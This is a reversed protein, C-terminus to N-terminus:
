KVKREGKKCYCRCETFVESLTECIKIISTQEFGNKIFLSVAINSMEEKTTIM